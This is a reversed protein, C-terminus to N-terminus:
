CLQLNWSGSGASSAKRPCPERLTYIVFLSLSILICCIVSVTGPITNILRGARHWKKTRIIVTLIGSDFLRGAALAIHARARPPPTIIIPRFPIIYYFQRKHRHSAYLICAYLELGSLSLLM